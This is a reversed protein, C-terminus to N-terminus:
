MNDGWTALAHAAYVLWPRKGGEKKKEMTDGLDDEDSAMEPRLDLSPISPSGCVPM